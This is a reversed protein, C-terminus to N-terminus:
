PYDSNEKMEEIQDDGDTKIKVFDIIWTFAEHNCNMTIEVGENKDVGKIVNAFHPINNNKIVWKRDIFVEKVEEEKAKKILVKLYKFDFPHGAKPATKLMAIKGKTKVKIKPLERDTQATPTRDTDESEDM